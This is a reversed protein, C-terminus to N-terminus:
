DGPDPTTESEYDWERDLFVQEEEFRDYDEATELEDLRQSDDYEFESM